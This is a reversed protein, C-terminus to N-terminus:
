PSVELGGLCEAEFHGLPTSHVFWSTGDRIRLALTSTNASLAGQRDAPLQRQCASNFRM